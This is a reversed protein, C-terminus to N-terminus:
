VNVHQKQFKKYIGCLSKRFAVDGRKLVNVEIDEIHMQDILIDLALEAEVITLELVPKIDTSNVLGKTKYILNHFLAEDNSKCSVPAKPNIRHYDFGRAELQVQMSNAFATIEQQTEFKIAITQTM